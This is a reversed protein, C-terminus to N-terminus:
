RPRSRPTRRSAFQRADRVVDAAAAADVLEVDVDGVLGDGLAIRQGQEVAGVEVTVICFRSSAWREPLLLGPVCSGRAGRGTPCRRVVLDVLDELGALRDRVQGDARRRAAVDQSLILNLAIVDFFAGPKEVHGVQGRDPDLGLDVLVFQREQLRAQRDAGAELGKRVPFEGSRQGEDMRM